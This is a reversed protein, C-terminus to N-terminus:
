GQQKLLERGVKGTIHEPTLEIVATDKYERAVEHLTAEPYGPNYKEGLAVLLAHTVDSPSLLKTRGFVIVSRYATTYKEPIVTANDVVCFSAKDGNQLADIKHGVKACHFYLKGDQWLYNLPVTYPYGDDGTLALVGYAGQTLVAECEQAPLQQKFRRMSRFM